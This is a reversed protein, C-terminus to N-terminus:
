NKLFYDNIEDFYVNCSCIQNGDYYTLELEDDSLISLCYDCCGKLDIGRLQVISKCGELIVPYSKLFDSLEKCNTM